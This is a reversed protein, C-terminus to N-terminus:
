RLCSIISGGVEDQEAELFTLAGTTADRDFAVVTGFTKTGNSIRAAAYVSGGDPSVAVALPRDLGQVGGVGNKVLGVFTLVCAPATRSFIAIADDREGAVYVHKDDLSTAIASADGIGSVGGLNDEKTEVYALGGGFSSRNFVVVTGPGGPGAPNDNTAVYVCNGDTTDAIANPNRLGNVGGVGNEVVQVFTLGNTIMSRQWVSVADDDNGVVYVYDDIVAVDVAGRLGNTSPSTVQDYEVYSLGGARTSAPLLLLLAALWM